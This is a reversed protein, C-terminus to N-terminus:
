CVSTFPIVLYRNSNKQDFRLVAGKKLSGEETFKMSTRQPASDLVICQPNYQYFGDQVYSNSCIMYKAKRHRLFKNLRQADFHGSPINM